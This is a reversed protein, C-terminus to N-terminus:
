GATVLKLARSRGCRRRHEVTQRHAGGAGVEVDMGLVRQEVPRALDVLQGLARRREALRGQPQGVVAHHVAGDLQERGAALVADLRDEATLRVDDLVVGAARRSPEVAEVQRQERRGRGAVPVEDLEGRGAEELAELAALRRDVQLLDGGVGLAHDREGAAELRAEALVQEVPTGAIGPGVGRLQDVREAGVVHVELDLLVPEGLLLLGVLPDDPDRSLESPRQDAGAVDVVQAALVVVVVGRQQAHLGLRRQGLRLDGEVGVLEVQARALLHRRRERLPRLRM